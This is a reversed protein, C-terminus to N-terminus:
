WRQGSGGTYVLTLSLWVCFLCLSCVEATDASSNNDNCGQGGGDGDHEEQAERTEVPQSGDVVQPLGAEPPIAQTPTPVAVGTVRVVGIPQPAGVNESLPSQTSSAPTAGGGPETYTAFPGYTPTGLNPDPDEEESVAGCPGHLDEEGDSTADEHYYQQQESECSSNNSNYNGM